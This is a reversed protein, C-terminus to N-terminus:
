GCDNAIGPDAGAALLRRVTEAHGHCSAPMVPTDGKDNRLNPPLGLTLAEALEDAQGDRACDSMRGAFAITDDELVVPGEGDAKRANSGNRM